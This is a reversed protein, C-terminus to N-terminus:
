IPLPGPSHVGTTQKESPPRQLALQGGWVPYRFGILGTSTTTGALSRGALSWGALSWQNDGPAAIEGMARGVDIRRAGTRNFRQAPREARDRM